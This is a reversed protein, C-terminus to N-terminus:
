GLFSSTFPLHLPSCLSSSWLKYTEGVTVLTMLNLVLLHTSCTSHMSSFLLDCLIKTSYGSPFFLNSLDLRLHSSLILITSLRLINEDPEPYPGAALQQSYPLSHVKPKWLLCSMEQCISHSNAESSPSQELSNPTKQPSLSHNFWTLLIGSV